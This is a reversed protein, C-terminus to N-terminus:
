IVGGCGASSGDERSAGDVNCKVWGEELPSWKVTVEKSVSNSYSLAEMSDEFQKVAIIISRYLNVSDCAKNKLIFANRRLWIRRVAEGFTIKWSMSEMKGIEKKSNFMIWDITNGNFFDSRHNPKVLKKWVDKNASCDRLAHIM